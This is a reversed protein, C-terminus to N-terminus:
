GGQKSAYGSHLRHPLPADTAGSPTCPVISDRVASDALARDAADNALTEAAEILAPSVKQTHYDDDFPDNVDEPLPAFGSNTTDQLLDRLRHDYETRTLRRAGSM